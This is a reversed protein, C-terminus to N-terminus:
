TQPTVVQQVAALKAKLTDHEARLQALEDSLAQVDTATAAAQAKWQAKVKERDQEPLTALYEGLKIAADLLASVLIDM